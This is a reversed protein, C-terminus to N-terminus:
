GSMRGITFAPIAAMAAPGVLSTAKSAAGYDLIKQAKAARAQIAAKMADDAGEPIVGKAIERVKSMGAREPRFARTVTKIPNTFSRGLVQWLPSAALKTAEDGYAAWMIAEADPM